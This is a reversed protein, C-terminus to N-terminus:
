IICGLKISQICDDSSIKVEYEVCKSEHKDNLVRGFNNIYESNTIFEFQTKEFMTMKEYEAEVLELFKYWIELDNELMPQPCNKATFAHHGRVRTIDLNHRKMIDAVLMATKQWTYWLDSGENVCSEIGISNHNGGTSCIRGEGVQSYCWWSTGLYYYGDHVKTHIGMMNLWKNDTVIGRNNRVEVPVSIGTDKGNIDFRGNKNITVKAFKPDNESIPVSTKTWSFKGIEKVSSTDGAHAGIYKEDLSAFIGDNGTVYHISTPNESLPKVFWCSNAFANAGDRMNGTYHITIFEISEMVRNQLEQGYRANAEEYFQMDVKYPENFLLKSVSGIVDYHYAVRGAGIGLNRRKFVNSEHCKLIFEIEKSVEKPLVTVFFDTYDNKCCKVYARIHTYGEKLGKVFGDNVSAIDDDLSLWVIKYEEDNELYTANLKITEGVRVYSSTEYSIRFKYSM